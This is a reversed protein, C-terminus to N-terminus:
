RKEVAQAAGYLANAWAWYVYAQWYQRHERVMGAYTVRWFEGSDDCYLELTPAAV